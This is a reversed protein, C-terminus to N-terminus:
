RYIAMMDIPSTAAQTSGATPHIKDDIFSDDYSDDDGVEDEDEDPTDDGSSVRTDYIAISM